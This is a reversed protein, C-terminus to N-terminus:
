RFSRTAWSSNLTLQWFSCLIPCFQVFTRELTVTYRAAASSKVTPNRISPFKRLHLAAGGPLRLCHGPDPSPHLHLPHLLAAPRDSVCVARGPLFHLRVQEAIFSVLLSNNCSRQVRFITNRLHHFSQSFNRKLTHVDFVTIQVRASRCHSSSWPLASWQPSALRWSSLTPTM